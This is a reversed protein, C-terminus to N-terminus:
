LLQLIHGLRRARELFCQHREPAVVSKQELAVDERAVDDVGPDVPLHVVLDIRNPHPRVRVLERQVEIDSAASSTSRKCNVTSLEPDPSNVRSQSSLVEISKDAM